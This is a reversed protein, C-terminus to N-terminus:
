EGAETKGDFLDLLEDPLPDFFSDPLQWRGKMWGSPRHVKTTTATERHTRVISEIAEVLPEPLDSVDIQKLMAVDYCPVRCEASPYRFPLGHKVSTLYDPLPRNSQRRM